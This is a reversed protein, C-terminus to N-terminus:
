ASPPLARALELCRRFATLDSLLRDPAAAHTVFEGGHDRIAVAIMLNETLGFDEISAAHSESDWTSMSFPAADRVRAAYDSMTNAYGLVPKGLARMFGIEYATGVDMSVGRFPTCNAIILDCSRMLRENGGSIRRALEAPTLDSADAIINDLPYVGELGFETCLNKKIEGQEVPNPFFVEPGALYIRLPM